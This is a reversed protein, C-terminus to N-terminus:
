QEERADRTYLRLVHRLRDADLDILHNSKRLNLRLVDESPSSLPCRGMKPVPRAGEVRGGQAGPEVQGASPSESGGPVRASPTPM